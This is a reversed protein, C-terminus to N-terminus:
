AWRRCRAPSTNLADSQAASASMTIESKATAVLVATDLAAILKTKARAAFSYDIAAGVFSILPVLAIAFVVAINGRRDGSFRRAFSVLRSPSLSM